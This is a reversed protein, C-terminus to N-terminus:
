NGSIGNFQRFRHDAGVDGCRFFKALKEYVRIATLFVGVFVLTISVATAADDKALGISDYLQRFAQGISCILGGMLFAMPITKHSPSPPSHKQYLKKYSSKSIKM